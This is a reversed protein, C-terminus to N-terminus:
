QHTSSKNNIQFLSAMKDNFPPGQTAISTTLFLPTWSNFTNAPGSTTSSSAHVLINLPIAAIAMWAVVQSADAVGAAQLMPATVSTVIVYLVNLWIAINPDISTLGKFKM